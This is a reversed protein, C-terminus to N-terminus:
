HSSTILTSSNSLGMQIMKTDPLHRFEKIFLATTLIADPTLPNEKMSLSNLCDYYTLLTDIHKKINDGEMRTLIVKCLWYMTGGATSDEHMSKLNSWAWYASNGAEHIFHKNSSDVISGLLVIVQDNDLDWSDPQEKPEKNDDILYKLKMVSLVKTVLYSWDLWNFDTGLAMLPNFKLIMNVAKGAETTTAM